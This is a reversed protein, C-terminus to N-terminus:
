LFEQSTEFRYLLPSNAIYERDVRWSREHTGIVNTLNVIVVDWFDKIAEIQDRFHQGGFQINTKAPNLM